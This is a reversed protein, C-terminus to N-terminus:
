HKFHKDILDLKEIVEPPIEEKLMQQAIHYYEKRTISIGAAKFFDPLLTKSVPTVKLYEHEGLPDKYVVPPLEDKLYNLGDKSAIQMFLDPSSGEIFRELVGPHILYNEIEYRQWRCITLGETLGDASFEHEPLNRNDGDLLLLGCMDSKVARLAFFHAKAERPHCGHNSHWYPNNLFDFAPHELILAWERLFDLDTESEVYLIGPAQEAMLIDLSTLRKIAERVEEREPNKVLCHPKGLFSIIRDPSSADVLVESHTAILLQCGQQRAIGCLRNYVQKQLIFHLYADPEDLLLISAPRAYFFGFLTLLTTKGTNNPGALVVNDSLEFVEEKFRKFSHLKIREIM